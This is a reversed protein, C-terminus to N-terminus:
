AKSRDRANKAAVDKLVQVVQPALPHPLLLQGNSIQEDIVPAYIVYGDLLVVMIRGQNQATAADLNVQGTHDFILLTGGPRADVGILDGETVEPLARVQIIENNPPIAVTQAQDPGMGSGTTQVHIRLLIKPPTHGAQAPLVISLALALLLLFRMLSKLPSKGFLVLDPKLGV